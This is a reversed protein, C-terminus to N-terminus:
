SVLSAVRDAGRKVGDLDIAFFPVVIQDVGLDRYARVDDADVPRLYPSIQIKM